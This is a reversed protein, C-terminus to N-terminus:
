NRKRVRMLLPVVKPLEGKQRAQYINELAQAMHPAQFQYDDQMEEFSASARLGTYLSYRSVVPRKDGSDIMPSTDLGMDEERDGRMAHM